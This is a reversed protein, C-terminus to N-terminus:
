MFIEPNITCTYTLAALLHMSYVVYSGGRGEHGLIYSLGTPLCHKACYWKSLSM